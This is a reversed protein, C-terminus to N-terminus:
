AGACERFRDAAVATAAGADNIFSLGLFFLALIFIGMRGKKKKFFQVIIIFIILIVTLFLFINFIKMGWIRGISDPTESSQEGFLNGDLIQGAENKALIEVIPSQCNKNLKIEIGERLFKVQEVKLNDVEGCVDGKNDKVVIKAFVDQRFDADANRAGPFQDASPSILLKIKAIEGAQYYNKDFTAMEVTASEGRVVYQFYIDNSIREKRDNKVFFKVAYSQPNNAVPVDFKFVRSEKPNMKEMSLDKKSISEGYISRRYTEMAPLFSQEKESTNILNCHLSVRENSDIDLGFDINFKESNGEVMLRCSAADVEIFNNKESGSILITGAPSNNYIIGRDNSLEVIVDYEGAFIKPLVYTVEMSKKEMPDLSISEDYVAQDLTIYGNETNQSLKIGYRVQPQVFNDENAIEFGIKLSEESQSLIKPNYVGIHAFSIFESESEVSDVETKLDEEQAGVWFPMGLFLFAGLFSWLIKKM